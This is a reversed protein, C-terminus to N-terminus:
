EDDEALVTEIQRTHRETHAAIFLFWQSLTLPGLIPHSIVRTEFSEDAAAEIDMSRARAEEFAQLAGPWEKYRGSPLVVDPAVVKKEAAAVRTQIWESKGVTEMVLEPPAEPQSLARRVGIISGRETVALHEVIESISWSGDALRSASQAASLGSCLSLLRDRTDILTYVM